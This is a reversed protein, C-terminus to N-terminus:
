KQRRHDRRQQHKAAGVEAIFPHFFHEFGDQGMMGMLVFGLEARDCQIRLAQLVFLTALAMLVSKMREASIMAIVNAASGAPLRRVCDSTNASTAIPIVTATYPTTAHDHLGVVDTQRQCCAIAARRKAAHAPRQSAAENAAHGDEQFQEAGDAGGGHDPDTAADHQM